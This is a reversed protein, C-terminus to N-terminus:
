NPMQYLGRRLSDSRARISQLRASTAAVQPHEAGLATRLAVLAEACLSDAELLLADSREARGRDSLVLSLASLVRATVPHARGQLRTQRIALERYDSEAESLAGSARKFAALNSLAVVTRQHDPGLSTQLAQLALSQVVLASDLQQQFFFAAALNNATIGVARHEDGLADRRLQLSERLVHTAEAYRKTANYLVGLDNLSRSLDERAPAGGSRRIRVAENILQEAEDYEGREHQIWGLLNASTAVDAHEATLATRRLELSRRALPEADAYLGLRDYGDALVELMDAKVTDRGAFDRDIRERQRDLLARVSVTDGVSQDAGTAGFMEMLFGRVELARDRESATLAAAAAVRRSQTVSVISIALLAVAVVALSIAAGTHRSVFKRTRYSWTDPRARVPRSGLYREIDDSLAAASQYRREPEKRLAMLVINDIDRDLVRRRELADGIADTRASPPSPLERLTAQERDRRSNGGTRYPHLGVLLEYLLVGLAYVDTATTAADGTLQEPAAYDPTLLRVATQTEVATGFEDSESLVKGIGFDLLKPTGDATVLINGPKLDRHVVLRQHAHQVGGCVQQLLRLRAPVSLRHTDCYETIPVGNVFEMVFYPRGDATAGADILQAVSPHQLNAVIRRELRFRRLVHATGMGRRIIKIAVHQEIGDADRVALYVEGMGGRGLLQLVRYPGISDQDTLTADNDFAFTHGASSRDRPVIPQELFDPEADLESLLAEVDRCLELDAGCATALWARRTEGTLEMAEACVSEIRRWREANIARTADASM